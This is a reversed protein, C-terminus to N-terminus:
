ADFFLTLALQLTTSDIAFISRKIRALFGTHKKDYTFDPYTQKIHDLVEWFIQEAIAADRTRNANSFTYKSKAPKNPTHKIKM